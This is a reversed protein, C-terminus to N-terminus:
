AEKEDSEGVAFPETGGQEDILERVSAEARELMAACQQKLKMAREFRRLMDDLPLEGSELEAVIAELEELAQEFSLDEDEAM